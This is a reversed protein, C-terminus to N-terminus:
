AFKIIYQYKVILVHLIKTIMIHKVLIANYYIVEPYNNGYILKHFSTM